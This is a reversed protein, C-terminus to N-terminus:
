VDLAAATHDHVIEHMFAHKLLQVDDRHVCAYPLLHHVYGHPGM